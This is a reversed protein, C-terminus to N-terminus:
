RPGDGIHHRADDGEGGLRPVVEEGEEGGGERQQEGNRGCEGGVCGFGCAFERLIREAVDLKHVHQATTTVGVGAM